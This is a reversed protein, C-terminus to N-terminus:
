EDVESIQSDIVKAVDYAKRLTQRDDLARGGQCVFNHMDVANEVEMRVTFSGFAKEAAKVADHQQQADEANYTLGREESDDAAAQLTKAAIATQESNLSVVVNADFDTKTMTSTDAAAKAVTVGMTKSGTPAHNGATKRPKATHNMSTHVNDPNTILTQTPAM